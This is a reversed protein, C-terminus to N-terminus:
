AEKLYCSRPANSGRKRSPFLRSGGLVFSDQSVYQKALTSIDLSGSHVAQHHFNSKVFLPIQNRNLASAALSRPDKRLFRVQEKPFLTRGKASKILEVIFNGIKRYLCAVHHLLLNYCGVVCVVYAFVNYVACDYLVSRPISLKGIGAQYMTRWLHPDLDSRLKGPLRFVQSKSPFGALLKLTGAKNRYYIKPAQVFAQAIEHVKKNHKAALTHLLSFCM